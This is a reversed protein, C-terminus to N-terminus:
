RGQRSKGRACADAAAIRGFVIAAGLQSGVIYDEYFLGGAANGAAYLGPIIMDENNIVQARVNILPGGFTATMGGRFPIAYFKPTGVPHPFELTNPPVLDGAMKLRVAENYESVTKVLGEVGIGAKRALEAVNEGEYIHAGARRYREFRDNVLPNRRAEEDLVIFARNDAGKRATEKGIRVYTWGEDVYREGAPTVCIGYNVASSPNAKTPGHIPGGHFQDMNVLRAGYAKGLTINEGTNVQSGRCPMRAAWDGIYEGVMERNAHFGGTALVVGGRAQFERVDAELQVRVGSIGDRLNGVLELIKVKGVLLIKRKITAALLDQFLQVGGPRLPGGVEHVRCGAPPLRERIPAWQVGVAHSLWHIAKGSNAAYVRTLDPDGRQRSAARLDQYFSEVDEEIGQAEQLHTRAACIAGGAFLINGAPRARKELILVRGGLDSAEIACALGACGAGLIILDYEDQLAQHKPM